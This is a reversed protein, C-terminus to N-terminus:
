DLDKDFQPSVFLLRRSSLGLEKEITAIAKRMEAMSQYTIDVDGYRLRLAGSAYVAKLKELHEKTYKM